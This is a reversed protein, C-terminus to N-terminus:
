NADEQKNEISKYVKEESFGHGKVENVNSIVVFSEPDIEYIMKKTKPLERIDIVTLIYNVEEKLYGTQAHLYTLGRDLDNLIMNSMEESKKTLIKIEIKNNGYLVVKDIMISYIVIMMIGYAFLTFTVNAEFLQVCLTLVDCITVGLGVGLHFYKHLILVLVDIGGTSGGSRMVLGIGVGMFLGAGITSILLEDTIFFDFNILELIMMCLPYIITACLTSLAFKKGLVLYGLIFFFANFGFTLYSTKINFHYHLALAIGTMGGTILHNSECFAIVGFAYLFNGIINLLLFSIIKKKSLNLKKM